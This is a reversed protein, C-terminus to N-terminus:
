RELGLGLTRELGRSSPKSTPSNRPPVSSKAWGSPGTRRISADLELQAAAAMAQWAYRRHRLGLFERCESRDAM